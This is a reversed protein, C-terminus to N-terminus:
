LSEEQAGSLCPEATLGWPAGHRSSAPCQLRRSCSRKSGQGQAFSTGLWTGPVQSGSSDRFGLATSPDGRPDISGPCGRPPLPSLGWCAWSQTTRQGTSCLLRLSRTFDHSGRRRSSQAGWSGLAQLFFGRHLISGMSQEFVRRPGVHPLGGGWSLAPGRGWTGQESGPGSLSLVKTQSRPRGM